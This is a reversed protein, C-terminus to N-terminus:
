AHSEEAVSLTTVAAQVARDLDDLRDRDAAVLLAYLRGDFPEPPGGAGVPLLANATVTAFCTVLVRETDRATALTALARRVADFELSAALRLPYHRALAVTGPPQCLETVGGQYTSMNLRANIELVPYVTEDAGVIADVGVVGHYGDAYLREAVAGAAYEIQRYQGDSLEAPMLHGQHVGQATLAQKVFDLEARGDRAITIQYNLDCRKPLWEEVVVHIRDDGTRAARRDVMRLLQAARGPNELVLLGKGSVGYADKVVLPEGSELRLRHRTLVEALEQRTECCVGPVPRLGAAEALRRGYIKSNVREVVAAAPTALTLGSRRALEEEDSTTGMPLLHAGAAGLQRLRDLLVPSDLANATTSREPRCNEPVLMTPLALGQGTLYDRYDPDLPRSLLIADGAGALLVGLEEMAAVVPRTAGSPVPLGVHNRAWQAEAEFNCLLVLPTDASGTLARKLKRLYATSM